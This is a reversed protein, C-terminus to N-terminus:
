GMEVRAGDKALVVVWVEDVDASAVGDSHTILLATGRESAQRRAWAVALEQGRPDLADFPEDLIKLPFPRASRSEALDQIAAFVALDKRRDQGGSGDDQGAGGWSWETAFSISERFGKKTATQASMRTTAEGCALAELHAAIRENVYDAVGDVLMSRIGRDGYAEVCYDAMRSAVGIKGARREATTLAATSSAARGEAAELAAAGDWERTKEESLERVADGLASGAESTATDRRRRALDGCAEELTAVYLDTTEYADPTAIEAELERIRTAATVLAVAASELREEAAGLAAAGDWTGADEKNRETLALDRAGEASSLAVSRKQSARVGCIEELAAVSRPARNIKDAAAEALGAARDRVTEAEGLDQARLTIAGELRGLDAAFLKAVGARRSKVPQRCSPCSGVELLEALEAVLDDREKVAAGHERSRAEFAQHSASFETARARDEDRVVLLAELEVAMRVSAAIDAKATGVAQEAGTLRRSCAAVRERKAGEFGERALRQEEVSVTLSLVSARVLMESAYTAVLEGYPGRVRGLETTTARAVDADSAAKVVAQEALEFRRSCERIRERKAADFGDRAVTLDSVSSSAATLTSRAVDADGSNVTLAEGLQARWERARRLPESFDVGQIEDLMRLQDAQDASAYREFAGQGFVVANKFTRLGFGLRQELKEQTVKMDAGDPVGDIGTVRLTAPSRTRTVSWPGLADELEISVTCTAGKPAFRCIVADAKRGKLDEGFLAYCIAHPISTKGVGNADSSQSVENRGRVLVLGRDGLPLTTRKRFPLFNEMSLSKIV